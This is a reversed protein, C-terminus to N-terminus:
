LDTDGRLALHFVDGNLTAGPLVTRAIWIPASAGQTNHRLQNGASWGLGWGDARIVFYPEGTLPNIPACDSGTNGTAIVGMIESIVQFQATGSVPNGTTFHIRWRDTQAGNNLVEIPYDVDNYQATAAGGIPEDSWVGTWSGQDFLVPVSAAMDGFLLASSVYSGLPFARSLPATLSLQGNIQVDSLLQMEEIRHRATLPQTYGTLDLDAAMTVSGAALNVVYKTTPVKDGDADVLWLEALDARGM